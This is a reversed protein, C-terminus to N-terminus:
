KLYMMGPVAFMILTGFLSGNFGLVVEVQTCVIAVTVACSLVSLATSIIIYVICYFYVNFTIQFFPIRKFFLM